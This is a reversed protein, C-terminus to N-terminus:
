ASLSKSLTAICQEQTLAKEERLKMDKLKVIGQEKENPGIIVIFPINQKAAYIIQAKLTREDGLYLEARIGNKRLEQALLLSDRQLSDDFITVLVQTLTSVPVIKGMKELAVYLRDVGVSAGVAPTSTSTFRGILGDFRGGSFVSGIEPLDLLTTEFVPGTYYDLGRAVSIDIRWNEQSIGLAVLNDAIAQLEGIGEEAVKIGSFINKLQSLIEFNGGRINLFAVIKDAAKDTLGQNKLEGVVAELGIKELKDIIRLVEKVQNSDFGAYEGLGNLIKRDNFRVVFRDIGLEKMTTCMLLVIETDALISKSGVIDADFQLFERFRGAQPKEKRWVKGVQYRKFPKQLEPYGAIVRALPVTLDFRLTISQDGTKMKYVEMPFAPDDTGLVDSRELAPTDLPVFGFMEYTRQITDIMRQRNIMDKPLYDRFGGLVEPKVTNNTM